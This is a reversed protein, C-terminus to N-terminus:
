PTASIAWAPLAAEVVDDGLMLRWAFLRPGEGAKETGGYLVDGVLPHGLHAMGARIQHRRGPGMIEVEIIGDRGNRWRCAGMTKQAGQSSVTMKKSRKYRSTFSLEFQGQRHLDGEIQALYIKRIVGAFEGRGSMAQRLAARARENTAVLLCGGTGQDLRHVLGAEHLDVSSTVHERLWAEVDPAQADGRGTLTHWGVPKDLVLWDATGHLIVPSDGM